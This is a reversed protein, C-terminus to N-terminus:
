ENRMALTRLSSTPSIFAPMTTQIGREEVRTLGKSATGAAQLQSRLHRVAESQWEVGRGGGACRSAVGVGGAADAVVEVGTEVLEVAQGGRMAGGGAGSVTAACCGDCPPLAQSFPELQRHKAHRGDLILLKCPKPRSVVRGLHSMWRSAISVYTSASESCDTSGVVHRGVTDCREAGRAKKQMKEDDRLNITHM